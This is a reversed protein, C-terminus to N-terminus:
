DIEHESILIAEDKSILNKSKSNKQGIYLTYLSSVLTLASGGLTLWSPFQRWLLIGWLTNIPLTMYEFPAVVSAMAMSYAKTTFFIGGAWILGLGFMIMLDFFSPTSWARFLFAISPDANPTPGIAMVLPTIIFAIVIYVLSSHFAMTASSDTTQLKRTVM